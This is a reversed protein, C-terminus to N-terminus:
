NQNYRTYAANQIETAKKLGMDNLSKIYTDWESDIDSSGLIWSQAREEIYTRMQGDIRTFETAEDQLYKLEPVVPRVSDNENYLIFTDKAAQSAWGLEYRADQFMGLNFQAGVEKLVALANKGNENKLVHDTFVPKGDVMTYDLGEIGFNWLRRGEETYWFDFYKIIRVPDKADKSIGWAGQNTKRSFLTQRSGNYNLPLIANFQLGPVKDKLTDNYSSTSAIWDITFGGLNNSLMYDRAKKGRTFIEKDLLGEKYWKSIEKIANKYNEQSPGYVLQGDKGVVWLPSVKYIDLLVRLLGRVNTERSFMGVEDNKGNGNPDKEKFAKLVDHLEQPTTPQALGLKDLWDQRIFYGHSAKLNEYDFYNPIVYIHGDAAYADKKYNPHETFFKKINPAHKEILDDLEILGGEYALSDLDQSIGSAIIDPLPTTSLMLNYAERENTLNQSAVGQLEVGTKKAAEVYVEWEDKFAQGSNIAFITVKSNDEKKGCSILALAILTIVLYKKM